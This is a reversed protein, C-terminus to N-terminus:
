YGIDLNQLRFFSADEVHYSSFRAADTLEPLYYKTKIVNYSASVSKAEYFARYTNILDHGFSGRFFANIDFRGIRLSNNFGIEYDPLGNGIIVEDHINIVDDDNQDKFRWTGDENVGEYEWGIFQGIKAGEEVRILPVNQGPAGLIALKQVGNEGFSAGKGSLTVLETNYTSFTFTPTYASNNGLDVHYNVTVEVGSNKIEGVNLWKDQYLNPPVSVPLNFIGDTTRRDYYDLSGTLRSDFLAFDVGFDLEEKKEWKLDPNPNSSPQFAPIFEGNYYFNNGTGFRLLSLYNGSPLAGTIGYSARVKLQSIVPHDLLQALDVGAGVGPFN